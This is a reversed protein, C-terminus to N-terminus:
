RRRRANAILWDYYDNVHADSQVARNKESADWIAQQLDQHARFTALTQQKIQM